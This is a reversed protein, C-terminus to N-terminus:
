PRYLRIDDFFMLGSGGPQPNDRDGFGLGITNVNSLNIGQDAFVQLDIKWETWIEIQAANPNDHNVVASGNLAVYLTEAANDSIGRFWITLTTVDNETWDRPYSLTKEVESYKLVSNDYFVPMSKGGGHVITEEMYSGATENGVMSGTGNGPSPPETPYSAYGIGDHWTFWIQNDGADYDEFDDVVLFNATTFSWLPGTWPSDPNTNNVEDIRWYYTTDWELQGTNYSESGLNGSGKCEPSTTDANKVAEKDTGFCVEHSAGYVGPSWTLTSTQEVDVAGNSPDPNGVAGQTTFSWVDGKHTEIIDFEDVRWYYTKALKLPGPDYTAEGLPLAGAANSVDDFNDGFYAHHLKAGFGPTWSLKVDVDVSETGDAPDPFYATKPPISFSWVSGKWPSNPETDNVEDIRWYYTTGPVLGDPYPFGPFGVIFETVAQNSIFTGEAGANVDDFNEGMYVDHSVAFDGTRWELNAWTDNHLTDNYPKPSYATTLPIPGPLHLEWLEVGDESGCALWRGDSSIAVQDCWGFDTADHGELVGLQEQSAIDWIHITNDWLVTAALLKGDPSFAITGIHASHGGLVGVQEQAEVDWLYVAKDHAGGASALITRDPSFALDDTIDLHGTLEGVQKQTQVDWVRIAEDERSGGSFLLRGDPSFAVCRVSGTHGRLVGVQQQTEVDWLRVTSDGSGSSALTKGDPSFAISQVGWRTPSQLVGVQNQGAVDWLHIKNGAAGTSGLALLTGDPSFAISIIEDLNFTSVQQQTRVDWLLVAGEANYWAALITGDPSFAISLVQGGGLRTPKQSFDVSMSPLAFAFAIFMFGALTKVIIKRCM